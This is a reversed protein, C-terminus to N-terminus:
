KKFMFVAAIILMLTIFVARIAFSAGISMEGPWTEALMMERWHQCDVRV